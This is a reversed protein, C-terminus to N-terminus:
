SCPLKGGLSISHRVSFRSGLGCVSRHQVQQPAAPFPSGGHTLLPWGSLAAAQRRWSGSRLPSLAAPCSCNYLSCHSLTRKGFHFYTFLSLTSYISYLNMGASAQSVLVSCHFHSLHRWRFCWSYCCLSLEKPNYFCITVTRVRCGVFDAGM